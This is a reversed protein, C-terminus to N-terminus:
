CKPFLEEKKQAMEIELTNGWAHEKHNEGGGEAASSGVVQCGSPVM